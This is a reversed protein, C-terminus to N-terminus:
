KGRLLRKSITETKAPNQLICQFLITESRFHSRAKSLAHQSIINEADLYKRFFRNLASQTSSHIGGLIFMVIEQFSMNRNRTFFRPGLRAEEMTEQNVAIGKVKTFM